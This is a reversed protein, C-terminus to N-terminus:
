TMATRFALDNIVDVLLVIGLVDPVKAHLDDSQIQSRHKRDPPM